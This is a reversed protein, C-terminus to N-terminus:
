SIRAAQPSGTWPSGAEIAVRQFFRGAAEAILQAAEQNPFGDTNLVLHYFQADDIDVNFNTKVFRARSRDERDLAEVAAELGLNRAQQLREVRKGSSGVLRIRFVRPLPATIYGAGHGILIVHGSAALHLVTEAIKPAIEWTPPIMGILEDMLCRIVSRHRGTLFAALSEPLHHEQLVQNMLQRDIVTWPAAGKPERAQLWGAVLTAIEDAPVGAQRSFTIAPGPVGSSGGAGNTTKLHAALSAHVPAWLWKEAAYDLDHDTRM